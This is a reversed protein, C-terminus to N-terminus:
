KELLENLSKSVGMLKDTRYVYSLVEAVAQYLEPPIESDLELAMLMQTLAKNKYIPVANSQATQLINDAILGKGKAVIKPAADDNHDYRLAVAQTLENKEEKSM